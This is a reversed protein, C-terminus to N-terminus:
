FRVDFARPFEAFLTQEIISRAKRKGIPMEIRGAGQVHELMHILGFREDFFGIKEQASRSMNLNCGHLFGGPYRGTYTAPEPDLKVTYALDRADGLEVRMGKLEGSTDVYQMPPSVPNISVSVQGPVLFASDPLKTGCDAAMASGSWCLAFSLATIRFANEVRSSLM